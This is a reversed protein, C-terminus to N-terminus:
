ADRVLVLSGSARGSRVDDVAEPARDFAYPTATARLGLTGALRLFEDGDARTNATVSRLDRELFLHEAYTMAPVDSLHIGAVVVTGGPSGTLRSKESNTSM